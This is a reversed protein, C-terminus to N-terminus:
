RRGENILDRIRLGNLTIGKRAKIWDEIAAATTPATPTGPAPVLHAVPRGDRTIVVTEGAEVKDLLEVLRVKADIAGITTM